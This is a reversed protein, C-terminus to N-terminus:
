KNKQEKNKIIEKNQYIAYIGLAIILMLIIRNRYKGTLPLNIKERDQLTLSVDKDEQTIEVKVEKGYLEYNLPSKTEKLTYTGVELNEFSAQGNEDTTLESSYGDDNKLKFTAGEVKVNSDKSDLKTLTLSGYLKKYYYTVYITDETMTGTANGDVKSFEYKNKYKENVEDLKNETTYSSDVRGDITVDDLLEENSDEDVYKVVVNTKKKVLGANENSATIEAIESTNLKTILDTEFGEENFKSNIKDNVGVEKQTVTYKSEPMTIQVYYNGKPLESFSYYGQDDTSVVSIINGNVDKVQLSNEDVLSVTINSAYPEDDDKLGDNNEDYWVYGEIKRKFIQTTANGTVIAETNAYIRASANNVYKDLGLNGSTDLYIDLTLKGQECIEGKIAIAVMELNIEGTPITQWGDGLDDSTPSATERQSEDTTYLIQLNDNSITNGDRDEQTVVVKEVKYSGNYSTGRSDGNYPLIDLFQFDPVTSETNNKYSVIYHIVDNREVVQDSTMKYLRHSSLNVVQVANSSTRYEVKSNGIKDASIVATNTYQTGNAVEENIHAKFTLPTIDKGVTCDYIKWVLTSTGDSNQTIDPEGYNSSGSVYTLGSALTDTLTVTIGEIEIDSDESSLIPVLEYNIDYENKGLDYTIKENGDSDISHVEVKQTAGNVYITNGYTYSGAHTGSVISGDSNYETKVYPMNESHWTPSPYDDQTLSTNEVTYISRDVMDAQNWLKTAYTMGYTRDIQATDKVVMRVSVTNWIPKWYTSTGKSEFYIGTCIYGDPIDSKNKYVLFDDISSTNNMETQSTWNTGDKKCLYYANFSLGSPSTFRITDGYPEMGEGDFKYIISAGYIYNEEDADNSVSSVLNAMFSNGVTLVTDGGRGRNTLGPLSGSVSTLDIFSGYSGKRYRTHTTTFADDNSKAQSTTSVGSLSTASFNSDSIKLYYSKNTLSTADEDPIIIQFYGASFCGINDTYIISKEFYEGNYKPFIGDFEYDSITVHLKSGNQTMTINGSNYITNLRNKSSLKEVPIGRNNYGEDSNSWSVARGSIQGPLSASNKKYNWLLPLNEDTIDEVNSGNTNSRTLTMDLDFSIEGSPIEIGKLGKSISDNYLELVYSYGYVRGSITTGDYDVSNLRKACYGDNKSLKINYKPAASVTVENIGSVTAKEDDSNGNLWVKIEPLIKTGNSAGLVKLSYVLTQKGPVTADSTSMYYKAKMTLGDDSIEINDAAWVMEDEDWKVLGKLSSPLTAETEIYGGSYSSSTASDNLVFTNEVTWTVEDFSRVISNTASSDNGAEDDSDFPAVGTTAQISVASSVRAMDDPLTEDALSIFFYINFICLIITVLLYRIAKNKM